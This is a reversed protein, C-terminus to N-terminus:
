GRPGRQRDSPLVTRRELYEEIDSPRYRALSGVKVWSPGRRQSRWARMTWPSVKLRPAVDLDSLLEENEKKSAMVSGEM